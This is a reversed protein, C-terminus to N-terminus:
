GDLGVFPLRQPITHLALDADRDRLLMLLVLRFPQLRSQDAPDPPRLAFLLQAM